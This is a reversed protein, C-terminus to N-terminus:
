GTFGPASVVATAVPSRLDVLPPTNGPQEGGPAGAVLPPTNGPQEGGPAGAVLPVV